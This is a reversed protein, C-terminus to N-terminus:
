AEQREGGGGPRKLVRWYLECLNTSGVAVNVRDKDLRTHTLGFWWSDNM